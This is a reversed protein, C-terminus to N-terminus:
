GRRGDIIHSAVIAEYQGDYISLDLIGQAQYSKAVRDILLSPVTYTRKGKAETPVVTDTDGIETGILEITYEGKAEQFRIELNQEGYLAAFNRVEESLLCLCRIWSLDRAVEAYRDGLARMQANESKNLNFLATKSFYKYYEPRCWLHNNHDARNEWLLMAQDQGQYIPIRVTGFWNRFLFGWFIIFFVISFFSKTHDTVLVLFSIVFFPLGILLWTRFFKSTKLRTWDPEMAEKVRLAKENYSGGNVYGSKSTALIKSFFLQDRTNLMFDLAETVDKSDYRSYIIRQNMENM